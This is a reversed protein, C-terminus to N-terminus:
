IDNWRNIGDFVQCLFQLTWRKKGLLVPRLLMGTMTTFYCEDNHQAFLSQFVSNFLYTVQFVNEITRIVLFIIYIAKHVESSFYCVLKASTNTSSM